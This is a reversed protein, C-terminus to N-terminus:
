ERQFVETTGSNFDVSSYGLYEVTNGGIAYIKNDLVTAGLGHRPFSLRPWSAWKNQEPDFVDVEDFIRAPDTPQPQRLGGIVVFLNGLTTGAVNSRADPIPPGASWTDTKPNYMELTAFSRSLIQQRGGVAYLLGDIAAAALTHRKTPSSKKIEWQDILPDYVTLEGTVALGELKIVDSIPELPVDGNKEDPVIGGVAFIKNDIVAAALTGRPTPLPAKKTWKQTAPDFEFVDAKPELPRTGAFGGVVYLKNNLSVAASAFRPEPLDPAKSWSNEKPDYIEVAALADNAGDHGGIAYIKGLLTVVAVKMRPTPMDAKKEWTYGQMEINEQESGTKNQSSLYFGVEVLVLITLISFLIKQM